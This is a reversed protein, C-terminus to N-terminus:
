HRVYMHPPQRSLVANMRGVTHNRNAARQQRATSQVLSARRAGGQDWTEGPFHIGRQRLDIELWPLMHIRSFVIVYCLRDRFMCACTDSQVCVRLLRAKFIPSCLRDTEHVPEAADQVEQSLVGPDGLCLPLAGKPLVRPNHPGRERVVDGAGPPDTEDPHQSADLAKTCQAKRAQSRTVKHRTRERRDPARACKSKNKRTKTKRPVLGLTRCPMPFFRFRNSPGCPCLVGGVYM